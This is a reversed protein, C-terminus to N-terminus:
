HAVRMYPPNEINDACERLRRAKDHEGIQDSWYALKRIVPVAKKPDDYTPKQLEHAYYAFWLEADSLDSLDSM